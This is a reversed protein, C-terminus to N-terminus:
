LSFCYMFLYFCSFFIFYFQLGIERCMVYKLMGDKKHGGCGM